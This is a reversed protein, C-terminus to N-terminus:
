AVSIASIIENLQDRDKGLKVQLKDLMVDKMGYDYTFDDEVLFPYMEKLKEVQIKWKDDPSQNNM